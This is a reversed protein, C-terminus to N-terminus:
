YFLWDRHEGTRRHSFDGCAPREDDPLRLLCRALPRPAIKSNMCRSPHNRWLPRFMEVTIKEEIVHLRHGVNRATVVFSGFIGVSQTHAGDRCFLRPDGPVRPCTRSNRGLRWPVRATNALSQPLLEVTSV